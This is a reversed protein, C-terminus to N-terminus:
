EGIAAKNRAIIEDIEANLEESPAFCVNGGSVLNGEEFHYFTISANSDADYDEKTYYVAFACDDLDDGAKEGPFNKGYDRYYYEEFVYQLGDVDTREARREDILIYGISLKHTDKDFTVVTRVTNNIDDIYWRGNLEAKESCGCLMLVVFILPLIKKM